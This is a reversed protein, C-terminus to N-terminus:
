PMQFMDPVRFHTHKFFGLDMHAWDNFDYPGNKGESFGLYRYTYMYNMCSKYQRYKLWQLTSPWLAVMNDNGGHDDVTLGLNHGLEHITVAIIVRQREYRPQSQQLTEAAISFSDLHHWGIFAFGTGPGIDSVPCYHFIGKRPNELDNHLFYDWYIDKLDAHSFNSQYPIEEGGGWQGVDIHITINHESFIEKMSDIYPELLKNSETPATQSKMWDMEIFIDKHFPHSGWADTYCEESNTLGDEDPDLYRHNDWQYPNYQYKTEWWDPVGDEDTDIGDLPILSTDVYHSDNYESVNVRWSAGAHSYTTKEVPYISLESKKYRFRDILPHEFFVPGFSSGWWNNSLDWISEEAYFGFTSAFLNSSHISGQSNICYAGFRFNKTINCYRISIDSSGEEIYLGAHTNMQITSYEVTINSSNSPKLGFGNHQVISNHILIHECTDLFMGGQNDNNNFSACHNITANSVEDLFFGIGNTHAMCYSLVISQSHLLNMGLGNQSVTCNDIFCQISNNVFIGQGNMYFTCHHISTDKTNQVRIATRMYYFTCQSIGTTDSTIIIGADGTNGGTNRLTLNSIQISSKNLHFIYPSFGGDIITNEESEGQISIKKSIRLNEVPYVGQFVYIMDNTAAQAVAESITSFPHTITGDGSEERSGDVYIIHTDTMSNSEFIQISVVSTGMCVMLFVSVCAIGRRLNM